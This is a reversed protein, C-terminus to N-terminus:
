RKILTHPAALLEPKSCVPGVPSTYVLSRIEMLFLYTLRASSSDIEKAIEAFSRLVSQRQCLSDGASLLSCKAVSERL